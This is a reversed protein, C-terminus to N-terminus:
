NKRPKKKNFDFDLIQLNLFLSNIEIDFVFVIYAMGNIRVM